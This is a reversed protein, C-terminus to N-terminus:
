RMTSQILARIHHDIRQWARSIRQQLREHEQVPRRNRRHAQATMVAM